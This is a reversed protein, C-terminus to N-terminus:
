RTYLGQRHATLNLLPDLRNGVNFVLQYVIIDFTYCKSGRQSNEFAVTLSTERNYVLHVGLLDQKVGPTMTYGTIGM